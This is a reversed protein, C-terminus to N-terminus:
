FGRRFNFQAGKRMTVMERAMKELAKRKETPVLGVGTRSYFWGERKRMKEEYVRKVDMCVSWVYRRTRMSKTWHIQCMYLLWDCEVAGCVDLDSSVVADRVEKKKNIIAYEFVTPFAWPFHKLLLFRAHPQFTTVAHHRLYKCTSTLSLYSPVDLYLLLVRIIDLPQSTLVDKGPVPENKGELLLPVVRKSHNVVRSFRPFIDPRSFMWGLGVDMHRRFDFVVEDHDKGIDGGRTWYPRLDILEGVQEYRVGQLRGHDKRGAMCRGIVEEIQLLEAMQKVSEDDELEFVSRLIGACGTHIMWFTGEQPTEWLFLAGVLPPRSGFMNGSCYDHEGIGGLIHKGVGTAKMFYRFEVNTMLGDPPYHEACPNAAIPAPVFPLRCISCSM